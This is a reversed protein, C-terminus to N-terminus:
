VLLFISAECKERNHVKSDKHDTNRCFYYNPNDTVQGAMADCDKVKLYSQATIYTAAKAVHQADGVYHKEKNNAWCSCCRCPVLFGKNEKSCINNNFAVITSTTRIMYLDHFLTM